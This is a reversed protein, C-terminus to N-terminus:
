SNSMFSKLVSNIYTQYNKWNCKKKFWDVIDKDLRISVPIKVQPKIVEANAWISADTEPIDSFDIDSDKMKDIRSLDSKVQKKGTFQKNKKM